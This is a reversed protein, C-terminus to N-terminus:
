CVSTGYVPVTGKEEKRTEEGDIRLIRAVLGDLIQRTRSLWLAIAESGVGLGRDCGLCGITITGLNM